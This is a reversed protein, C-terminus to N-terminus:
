ETTEIQLTQLIARLKADTAEWERRFQMALIKAKTSPNTLEAIYTTKNERAMEFAAWSDAWDYTNM